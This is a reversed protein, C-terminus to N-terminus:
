LTHGPKPVCGVLTYFGVLMEVWPGRSLWIPSYSKYRKGALITHTLPPQTVVTSVADVGSWLVWIACKKVIQIHNLHLRLIEDRAVSPGYERKFHMNGKHFEEMM